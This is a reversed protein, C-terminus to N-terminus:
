LASKIPSLGRRVHELIDAPLTSPPVESLLDGLARVTQGTEAALEDISLFPGFSALAVLLEITLLEEVIGMSDEVAVLAEAVNSAHDEHGLDLPSIDLTMPQALQRLKTYRAAAPYRLSLGVLWPPSGPADPRFSGGPDASGISSVALDWLQGMRRESLLGVHGLAVRLSEAALALNMPQFNGNSIVQSSEIDVLPNDAAANLEATAAEAAITITDRCAGHVQPAVRFSLPDQVSIEGATRSSGLLARQINESSTVQGRSGRAKAVAPHVVSPNAKLAEMSVAVVRDAMGMLHDLDDILLATHGVTFANSSILGLADKAELVVPSLGKTALAEAAPLRDGDCVVMGRGLLVRAVTALQGLDGSGVSGRSSVVPTVGSNLLAALAEAVALSVGAGGRAIGSLRAAMGARVRESPFPGGMGGLHMEILVPQMAQLADGPLAQDRAHGVGTTVGYIAEGRSIAADVVDRSASIRGIVEPSLVVRSGRALAVVERLTMPSTSITVPEISTM